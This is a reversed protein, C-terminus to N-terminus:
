WINSFLVKRDKPYEPFKELYWHHHDRARPVLNAMTWLWFSLSAPGPAVVFFGFWEVIEGFYNPVSIKDFLFGTPLKYTTEGQKRLGLLMNDARMNIFMGVFFVLCGIIVIAMSEYYWGNALFVGNLTGNILNFFISSSAIVLPMQKKRNKLRLPYIIARNVYHISWLAMPILAIHPTADSYFYLYGAWLCILSPIEMIFWGFSNNIMPGWDQRTHRGFPPTIKMVFLAFFTIIALGNWILAGIYWYIEM